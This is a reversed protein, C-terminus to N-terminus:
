CLTKVLRPDSPLLALTHHYRAFRFWSRNANNPEGANGVTMPSPIQPAAKEMVFAPVQDGRLSVM